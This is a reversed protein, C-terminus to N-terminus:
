ILPDQMNLNKLQDLVDQETLQWNITNTPKNIMNLAAILIVGSEVINTIIM